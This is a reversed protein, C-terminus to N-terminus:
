KIKAHQKLYGTYAEFEQQGRLQTYLQKLQKIQEPQLQEIPKNKVQSVAVIVLENPLATTTVSWMGAKPTPVSFAAREVARKLLGDARTFEGASEFAINSKALAQAAPETKFANLSKAIDAKALQLAKEQILKEKVQNKAEEFTQTGAAHYNAVKVWVVDGNSLQINASANHDGNEVDSNFLKLKVNPDSLVPHQQQLTFGKVTQVQATKVEQSIVDLADSSVVLENLNNVVDAFAQDSKTKQVQALLDAKKDEFSAVMTKPVTKKVIQYGFQTKVPTSVKDNALKAVAQDFADGFAGKSYAALQGANNKSDPDESYQAAVEAFSQGRNLAAYAEDIRQKAQADNKGDLTVLIHSIVPEVKAQEASLFQQYAQKLENETVPATTTTVDQASLVVYNVDVNTSQKFQDKHKEYYQQIEAANVKVKAKYPTLDISALHLTRQQTQLDAIQKLDSSSVLAFDALTATLMRLAHDQRISNIFSQSNPFGQSKLYNAYLAESFRGNEQFSPQQAIMQEIQADSLSIGLEDAKQSLLAQAILNDLAKNEIYKKNLLTEDGNTYALYQQKFSNSLNEVEKKSIEQGNVTTVTDPNGGSFYGEIGIFAVPILFLVLLVKGLWGKILKRFSEM